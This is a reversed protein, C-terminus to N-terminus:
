LHLDRLTAVALRKALTDLEASVAAAGADTLVVAAPLQPRQAILARRLHTPPHTDDTSHGRLAGVRRLRERESEPVGLAHAAVGDWLGAAIADPDAGHNKTRALIVQRRLQQRMSSGLLLADFIGAAAQSSGVRAALADARYEARQSARLTCRGLVWLLGRVALWPVRIALNAFSAVPGRGRGSTPRLFHCWSDLTHLATGVVLTQRTDGNAYHGFEHGLVAVRQQPTLVKWLPLGLSLLRHRRLGYERVSANVQSTLVVVDVPRTGVEAAIRDLLAYLGPADARRLIPAHRPLRGLRPRLAVAILLLALGLALQTIVSYGFVVLLLGAVALAATGLHVAWSLAYAAVGPADLRPSALGHAALEAHLQEGQRTALKKRRAARRGSPPGEPLPDTNWGCAACWVVFRPDDSLPEGCVTCSKGGTLAAATVAATTAPEM